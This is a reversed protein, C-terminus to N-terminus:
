SDHTALRSSAPLDAPGTPLHLSFCAGGEPRDHAEIDGNFERVIDRSIALGLGLGAGNAKTTFFPEFLHGRAHEGLGTGTDLVDIRVTHTAPEFAAPGVPARREPELAARLTLRKLPAGAMADMANGVLNILVQELRNSDCWASVVGPVCENVVEVGEKRLRSEYLFLANGVAHAVDTRAPIPLSKRAFGKLPTIIAGMQDAMRAIIGLNGSLASLDGRRLFESANGSLTRIAGLPQTLEHTIGTALQGLIAM